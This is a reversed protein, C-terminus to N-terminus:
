RKKKTEDQLSILKVKLIHKFHLERIGRSGALTSGHTNKLLKMESLHLQFNM